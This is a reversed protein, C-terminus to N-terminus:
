QWLCQINFFQSSFSWNKSVLRKFITSKVVFFFTGRTGFGELNYQELKSWELLYQWMFTNLEVCWQINHIHDADKRGTWNLPYKWKWFVMNGYILDCTSCIAGFPVCDFTVFLVNNANLDIQACPIIFKIKWSQILSTQHMGACDQLQSSLSLSCWPTYYVM